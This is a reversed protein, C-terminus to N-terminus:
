RDYGEPDGFLEASMEVKFDWSRLDDRDDLGADLANMLHGAAEDATVYDGHYIVRFTGQLVKTSRPGNHEHPGAPAAAAEPEFTLCRSCMGGVFDHETWSSSHLGDTWRCKYEVAAPAAPAEAREIAEWDIPEVSV